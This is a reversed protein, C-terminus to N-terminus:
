SVQAQTISPRAEKSPRDLRFVHIQRIRALRAFVRRIRSARETGKEASFSESESLGATSGARNKGSPRHASGGRLHFSSVGSFNSMCLSAMPHRSRASCSNGALWRATTVMRSM